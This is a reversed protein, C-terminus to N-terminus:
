CCKRFSVTEAGLRDILKCSSVELFPAQSGVTQLVKIVQPQATRVARLKQTVSADKAGAYVIEAAHKTRKYTKWRGKGTM